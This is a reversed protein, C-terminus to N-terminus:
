YGDINLFFGLAQLQIAVKDIKNNEETLFFECMMSKGKIFHSVWKTLLGIQLNFDKIIIEDPINNFRAQVILMHRDHKVIAPYCTYRYPKMIYQCRLGMPQKEKKLNLGVRPGNYIVTEQRLSPVLKLCPNDFTCPIPEQIPSGNKAALIILSTILQEISEIGNVSLIYEVVKCPGEIFGQSTLISRILIGGFFDPACGITIDLGKYTGGKYKGANQRHFYFCNHTLQHPDGHIFPDPVQYFEIEAIYCLNGGIMLAKQFFYNKATNM